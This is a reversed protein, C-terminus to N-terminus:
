LVEGDRRRQKEPGPKANHAAARERAEQLQEKISPKIVMVSARAGGKMSLYIGGKGDGAFSMPTPPSFAELLLKDCAFGAQRIFEPSVQAMYHVNDLHNPRKLSKLEYLLREAEYRAAQRIDAPKDAAPKPPLPEKYLEYGGLLAAKKDFVEDLAFQFDDMQGTRECWKDAVVELPDEFLMLYDVESAEFEHCSTLYYHADAVAAIMGADGILDKKDLILLSEHYDRLNKDLRDILERVLLAEHCFAEANDYSDLIAQLRDPEIDSIRVLSEPAMIAEDIPCEGFKKKTRYLKTFAAEIERIRNDSYNVDCFNVHVDDTSFDTGSDHEPTGTMDIQVVEGVLCGYADGPMSIVLDGPRLLGNICETYATESM